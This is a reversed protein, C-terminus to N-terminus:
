VIMAWPGFPGAVCVAVTVTVDAGVTAPEIEIEGAVPVSGADAVTVHVVLSALKTVTEPGPSDV